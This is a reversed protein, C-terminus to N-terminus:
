LGGAFGTSIIAMAGVMILYVLAIAPLRPAINSKSRKMTTEQKNDPPSSAAVTIAGMQVSM